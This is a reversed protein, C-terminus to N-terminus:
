TSMGYNMQGAPQNQQASQRLLQKMAEIKRDPESIGARVDQAPESKQGSAYEPLKAQLQPSTESAWRKAIQPHQSFMFKEQALSQFPM